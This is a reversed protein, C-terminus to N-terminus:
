DALAFAVLKTDLKVGPVDHGGAAIAVMSRGKETKYILPTARASTPLKAKWLERGDKADFARFYGDITAGIFVIGTDTTSPGGLNVAGKAPGIEGLPVRWSIKGSDPHVAVLEGWPAKICPTGSPSLFFHRSMSFSTGDQETTERDPHAKRAEAFEARPILRVVAPFRNVPAILLRNVPDWAAGGWHLGGVNGPVILSGQLSPPTFIGDNRLSRFTARCAELDAPTAGWLDEERISHPVLSPPLTPFPQTPSAKEGPIDSAPVPKEDIRFIPEGTLRNFLFLHGTKSGAAVAPGGKSPFLVPPSAVDYDWLDHHVTQFHWAVKGSDARLAVISNAYLNDGARLGGFYDPSASGTPLYVLGNQSDVVIRSWTNAGGVPSDEPLPHFTWRVAGTAADFARVEGSAMRLRSNDAVASGVIVIDKYIAPPSTLGYEGTYKPKSRLGITLDIQGGTGFGKCLAGDRRNLCVLRADVTGVYLRDKHLTLGRNAYDGYNGDPNVRLSVKWIEKGSEADLAIVSGAPTALYLKGDAYVPTAEFRPTRRGARLPIISDGTDYTWAVKLRSVNAATIPESARLPLPGLMFLVYVIPIQRM